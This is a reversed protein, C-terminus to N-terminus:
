HEDRSTESDGLLSVQWRWVEKGDADVKVAALDIGGASEGAWSNTTDGALVVSSDEAVAVGM